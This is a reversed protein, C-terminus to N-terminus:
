FGPSTPRRDTSVRLDLDNVLRLTGTTSPPPVTGEPDTWAITVALPGNGSATVQFIETAGQDLTKEAILNGQGDSIVRAARSINALGWGHIYDPGPTTGAEDATHIVLSKLTAARMFKGGNLKSYHEQLLFMSGSLNPTSMSTGGYVAYADDATAISSLLGVGNAVVDPKIRGDDTPGWSSFSSIKVDSPQQYSNAIPEVAGV